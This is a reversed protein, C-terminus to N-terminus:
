SRLVSYVLGGALLVACLTEFSLWMAYAAKNPVTRLRSWARYFYLPVAVLTYIMWVVLLAFVVKIIPFAPRVGLDPLPLFLAALVLALAWGIAVIYIHNRSQLREIKTM